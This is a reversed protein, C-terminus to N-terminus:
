KIKSMHWIDRNYEEITRDSSFYGSNAINILCMKAWRLKNSYLKETEFRAQDYNHFDALIFYEDNHYMVHVGNQENKATNVRQCQRGSM